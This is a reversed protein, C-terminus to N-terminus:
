KRLLIPISTNMNNFHDLKERLDHHWPALTFRQEQTGQLDQSVILRDHSDVWVTTAVQLHVVGPM